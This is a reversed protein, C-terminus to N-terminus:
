NKYRLHFLPNAFHKSSRSPCSFSLSAIKDACNIGTVFFQMETKQKDAAYNLVNHLDKIEDATYYDPNATKLHNEAYQVVRKLSDRVPWIKTTAM